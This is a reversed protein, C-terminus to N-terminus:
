APHIPKPAGSEIVHCSRSDPAHLGGSLERCFSNACSEPEGPKAPYINTSGSEIVRCSRSEPAYHGRSPEFCVPPSRVVASATCLGDEWQPWVARREPPGVCIYFEPYTNFFRGGRLSGGM